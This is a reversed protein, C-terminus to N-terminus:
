QANRSPQSGEPRSSVPFKLRFHTGKGPRSDVFIRGSHEQVIGYSVSLGLGVGQGSKKTTFFPDYINKIQDQPIGLGTDKVDIVVTGNDRSTKVSLEGGAPMADRANLFINVFVQQLKGTNGMMYPLQGDLETRVRVKQRKFQHELLSLTEQIVENVNLENFRSEHLRAFHLLSNVIESARFTQKEIKRLVERKPDDERLQKLLMQTYSSIGAIPTNVEHAVGAALLGISSLKEAQLLQDELQVKQTIDDFVLLTGTSTDTRDILPSISVNVMVASENRAVLFLKYINVSEHVTLQDSGAARQLSRVFDPSFLEEFKRGCASSVPLGSLREMIPNWGTVVGTADLVVVGVHISAIINESYVKLQELERAKREISNYLSANELAISAYGCLVSLLELDESSLFDGSSKRGVGLLGITRGRVVLPRAYELGLSSLRQRLPSPESGSGDLELVEALPLEKAQERLGASDLLALGSTGEHRLFIAVSDVGLTNRIRDLILSCLRPLSIESSLTRAFEMLSARYNYRERYFYRDISTQIRSRVPAFLFAVLLAAGAVVLLHSGPAILDVLKGTLGILAFYFALVASSAALYAAGKKFIVDVDMLKYRVIAYAFTLPLIALSLVSAKLADGPQFGLLFPVVYLLTFPGIGALGGGAIWKLQQRETGAAAKQYSRVLLSVGAAFYAAFYFLHLRDMWGAVEPTRPLSLFALRGMAWLVHSAWLLLFPFYLAFLFARNESRINSRPFRLCFHLFLPPLLLLALARTWYVAYDIPSLSNTYRYLYLVFSLLCVLYFHIARPARWNRLLIVLGIGLYTFAVAALYHDTAQFAPQGGLTLAVQRPSGAPEAVTYFIIRGPGVRYIWERYEKLGAVPWGNIRLLKEGKRIGALDAPGGPIMRRAELGGRTTEWLVGDDPDKWNLRDEANSFGLVVLIATLFLLATVKPNM